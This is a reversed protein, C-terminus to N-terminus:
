HIKYPIVICQSGISTSQQYGMLDRPAFRDISCFSYNSPAPYIAFYCSDGSQLPIPSEVLSIDNVIISMNSLSNSVPHGGLINSFHLSNNSSVLNNKYFFIVLDGKNINNSVNVKFYIGSTGGSTTDAVVSYNTISYTPKQQVGGVNGNITSYASNIGGSYYTNNKVIISDKNYGFLNLSDRIECIYGGDVFNNINFSANLGANKTKVTYVINNNQYFNIIFTNGVINSLENFSEDYAKFHFNRSVPESSPDVSNIKTDKKCSFLGLVVLIIVFYNKMFSFNILIFKYEKKYISNLM